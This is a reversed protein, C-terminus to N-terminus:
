YHMNSDRYRSLSLTKFTQRLVRSQSHMVRPVAGNDANGTPNRFLAYPVTKAAKPNRKLLEMAKRTLEESEKCVKDMDPLVPVSLRKPDRESSQSTVATYTERSKPITQPVANGVSKQM